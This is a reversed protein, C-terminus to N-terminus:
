LSPKESELKEIRKKLKHIMILGYISYFLFFCILLLLIKLLFEYIGFM